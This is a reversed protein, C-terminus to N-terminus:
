KEDNGRRRSGLSILAKQIGAESATHFLTAPHAFRLTGVRVGGPVAGQGAVAQTELMEATQPTKVCDRGRVHYNNLTDKLM